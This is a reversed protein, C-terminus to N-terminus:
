RRRGGGASLGRPLDLAMQFNGNVTAQPSVSIVPADLDGQVSAGAEIVLGTEAQIGGVHEGHVRVESAAVDGHVAGSASVELAGDLEIGGNVHGDVLLSGAGTLRGQVRTDAAIVNAGEM